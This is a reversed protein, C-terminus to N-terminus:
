KAGLNIRLLADAPRSAAVQQRCRILVARRGQWRTPAVKIEVALQTGDPTVLTTSIPVPQMKGLHAASISSVLLQAGDSSLFSGLSRASLVKANVGLMTQMRQSSFVNEGDCYVLVGEDLSEILMHLSEATIGAQQYRFQWLVDLYWRVLIVFAGIMIVFLPIEIVLPIAPQFQYLIVQAAIVGGLAILTIARYSFIMGAILVALGLYYYGSIRGIMVMGLCSIIGITLLLTAAAEVRGMRAIWYSPLLALATVLGLIEVQTLQASIAFRLIIAILASGSVVVVLSMILRARFRRVGDIVIAAPNTLQRWYDQLRNM